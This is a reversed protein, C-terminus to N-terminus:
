SGINGKLSGVNNLTGEEYAHIVEQNHNEVEEEEQMMDEEDGHVENVNPSM